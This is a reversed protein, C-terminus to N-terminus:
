GQFAASENRSTCGDSQLTRGVHVSGSLSRAARGRPYKRLQERVDPPVDNAYLVLEGSSTVPRTTGAGIRFTRKESTGVSGILEFWPADPRRRFRRFRDLDPSEYGTASVKHSADNWLDGAHPTFEYEEGSKVVIHTHNWPSRANARVVREEGPALRVDNSARDNAASSCAVLACVVVFSAYRRSV